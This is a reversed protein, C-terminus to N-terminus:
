ADTTIVNYTIACLNAAIDTTQSLADDWQYTYPATGGAPVASANGDCHVLLM